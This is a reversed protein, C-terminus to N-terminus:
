SGSAGILHFYTAVHHKPIAQSPGRRLADLFGIGDTNSALLRGNANKSILNVADDGPPKHDTGSLSQCIRQKLPMTVNCGRWDPDCRRERLYRDLTADTVQVARYEGEMGLKELWFKHILPSKSHGIPDGIVEAYLIAM